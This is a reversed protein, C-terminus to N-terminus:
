LYRYNNRNTYQQAITVIIIYDLNLLNGSLDILISPIHMFIMSELILNEFSVSICHCGSFLILFSNFYLM